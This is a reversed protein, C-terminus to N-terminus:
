FPVGEGDLRIMSLARELGLILDCNDPDDRVDRLETLIRTELDRLASAAARLRRRRSPSPKEHM